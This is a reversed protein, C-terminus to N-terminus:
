QSLPSLTALAERKGEIKKTLKIHFMALTEEEILGATEAALPLASM